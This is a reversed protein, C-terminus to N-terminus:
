SIVAQKTLGREQNYLKGINPQRLELVKAADRIAWLKQPGNFTPVPMGNYVRHFGSRSLERGMGNATVRKTKEPDYANLLEESTWLKWPMPKGTVRLLTDANYKLQSIWSGLDSKTQEIMEMKSNTVPASGEPEFDKTDINLLYYFLAQKGGEIRLWNFYRKYFSKDMPPSRIEHVFFRRDTDEM